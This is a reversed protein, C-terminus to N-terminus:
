PNTLTFGNNNLTAPSTLTYTNLVSVYGQLTKTGGGNLTLNRYVQKALTTAGGKIDQNLNGYIFTNLNTSTDLIGTAMPQTAANHQIICGSGNLFTSAANNGNITNNFILTSYTGSSFLHSLTIAGSILIPCDFSRNMQGSQISQNNTSFTWTGTGTLFPTLTANVSGFRIGNKLEVSPNGISFDLNSGVNQMDFIGGIIVNGSGSKQVKGGGMFLNGNITVDYTSFEISGGISKHAAGLIGNIITTGSLTKIGTGSVSLNRYSTLPITYNGNFNYVVASDQNTTNDFIGTTMLPNSTNLVLYSQYITNNGLLLKSSANNGNITNNLYISLDAFLPKTQLTIAGSIIIPCDFTYGDVGGSISQNNTTFTWINTGTKFISFPWGGLCEIGNRLEVSPNGLSFDLVSQINSSTSLIGVFLVSGSGSKKLQGNSAGWQTIGNVVFNYTSLELYGNSSLNLNGNLTTNVGLSKTGTGSITLNHFTPFYSPITATYNGTYGITNVNSTFNWTGTTMSSVSAASNFNLVGTAGMLLNSGATTGNITANTTIGGQAGANGQITLTINDILIPADWVYPFNWSTLIQNNTTFRWTGTGTIIENGANSVGSQIGGRCEVNPNGQSFDIKTTLTGVDLRGVFLVNGFHSKKISNSGSINTQGFVSLDFYSMELVQTTGQMRLQNQVILNNKPKKIGRGSFYLNQYQIDMLEQDDPKAYDIITNSNQIITSVFNNNGFLTLYGISSISAIDLIGNGNLNGYVQLTIVQGVNARISLRNSINLNNCTYTFQVGTFSIDNRVYVDDFQTPTKGVNGSATQWTFPDAWNGDRVSYFVERQQIKPFGSDADNTFKQVGSDQLNVPFGFM